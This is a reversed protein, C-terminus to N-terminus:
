TSNYNHLLFCSKKCQWTLDGNGEEEERRSVERGFASFVRFSSLVFKRVCLSVEDKCKEGALNLEVSSFSIPKAAM